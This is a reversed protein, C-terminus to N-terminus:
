RIAEDGAEPMEDRGARMTPNSIVLTQVPYPITVGEEDLAQKVKTIAEDRVALINTGSNSTWYRMRLTVSSDAYAMALVDPAPSAEIGDITALAGLIARRAAPISDDYGIGFEIETRRSEYATIVKVEETFVTANPIVIRQNDYTRLMTARTQIDEVTGEYGKVAITDGIKFPRSILIIVGALFNQFIDKFAFGVAVGGIGLTQVLNNATFTPFVTSVAVLGGFTMAVYIAFRGLLLGVTGGPDARNSVVRVARAAYKGMVYAIVLVLAALILNPLRSLIENALRQAEKLAYGPDINM